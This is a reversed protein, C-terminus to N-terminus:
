PEVREIGPILDFHRDFSIVQREGIREAFVAHYADAFPLNLDIFLRFVEEYQRKGPLVIGRLQLLPLVAAAIDKKALHYRRHLTFVTEFIVIDTVRVRLSGQEIQMLLATSRPSQQADDGLLHRLIVNTDLIPLAM